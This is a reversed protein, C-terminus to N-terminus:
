KREHVLEGNVYVKEVWTKISLPPGDLVLVDADKGAALSGVRDAIGLIEAPGLTVSRLIQEDSFGYGGAIAADFLLWKTSGAPALTGFARSFTAIAVKIGASSLTAATREDIPPYDQKDPIEENSVYPHSQMGLIVPIRRAVLEDKVDSAAAGGDIILDFGFEQALRLASRIDTASNAEIKAPIKRSLVLGVAELALDRPKTPTQAKDRQYEQAKVFLQRLMAVEAMRTYPDRNRARAAAKPPTGLTMNMAVVDKVVVAELSAGATKVVAGQGGLIAADAPGIYLTTVGGSLAEHNRLPGVKGSGFSGFPYYSDLARSAPTMPDTADNLDSADIGLNTAADIVGPMVYKGKAEVIEAGSPIPVNAGVAVIKGNQMVVVGNPIPAGSVPIVTGGRIAIARAQASLVSGAFIMALAALRCPPLAAPFRLSSAASRRATLSIM